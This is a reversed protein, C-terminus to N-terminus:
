CASPEDARRTAGLWTPKRPRYAGAPNELGALLEDAIQAREESSLQQAMELVHQVSNTAM